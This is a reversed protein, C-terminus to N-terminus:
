RHGAELRLYRDYGFAQGRHRLRSRKRLAHLWTEDERNAGDLRALVVRAEQGRISLQAALRPRQGHDHGSSGPHRLEDDRATRSPGVAVRKVADACLRARAIEAM